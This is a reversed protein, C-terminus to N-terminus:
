YIEIEIRPNKKDIEVLEFRPLCWKDDSWIGAQTLVDKLGKDYNSADPRKNELFIQVYYFLQKEFSPTFPRFGNPIQKKLKWFCEEKWANFENTPVM